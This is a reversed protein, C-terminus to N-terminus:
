LYEFVTFGKEYLRIRFVTFIDPSTMIRIMYPKQNGHFVLRDTLLTETATISGFPASIPHTFVEGASLM